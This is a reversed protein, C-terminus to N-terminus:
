TAPLNKEFDRAGFGKAYAIKDRSLIALSIGPIKFRTMIRIVTKEVQEFIQDGGM